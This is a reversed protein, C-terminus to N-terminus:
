GAKLVLLLVHSLSPVNTNESLRVFLEDMWAGHTISIPVDTQQAPPLIIDESVYMRRVYVADQREEHLGILM